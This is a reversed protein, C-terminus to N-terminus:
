STVVFSGVQVSVPVFVYTYTLSPCFIVAAVTVSSASPCSQSSPVTVVGAVQVSSPTFVNVQVLHSASFVSVM